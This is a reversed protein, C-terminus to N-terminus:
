KSNFVKNHVSAFQPNKRFGKQNEVVRDSLSILSSGSIALTATSWADWM